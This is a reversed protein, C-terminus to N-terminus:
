CMGIGLLSNTVLRFNYICKFNITKYNKEFKSLFKSKGTLYREMELTTSDLFVQFENKYEVCLPCPDMILWDTISNQKYFYSTKFHGNLFFVFKSKGSEASNQKMQLISKFVRFETSYQACIPKLPCPVMIWAIEFIKILKKLLEEPM